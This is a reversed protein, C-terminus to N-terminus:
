AAARETLRYIAVLDVRRLCGMLQELAPADATLIWQSTRAGLSANSVAAVFGTRSIIGKQYKEIIEAMWERRWFLRLVALIASAPLTALAAAVAGAEMRLAAGTIDPQEFHFVLDSLLSEAASDDLPGGRLALEPAENVLVDTLRADFEANPMRGDAYNQLLDRFEELMM